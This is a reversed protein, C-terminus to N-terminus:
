KLAVFGVGARAVRCANRLAQEEVDTWRVSLDDWKKTKYERRHVKQMEQLRAMERPDGTGSYVIFLTCPPLAEWVAAIRDVTAKVVTNLEAPSPEAKPQLPSDPSSSFRNDNLWHRTAALEQMRAWTFDVGGGPIYAGDPDGSVARKVGDVIAADDKCGICFGAMGGFGREPAGRDVIAGTKGDRPAGGAPASSGSKPTRSLRKFIPEGSVETSGWKPGKECKQKILDLCVRADEISDHGSTGTGQQIERSLYKQVLWKLSSKLPPGRPHPFAISTDIIFPHTIKLAKLDSDLSHGVLITRPRFLELVKTQIDSLSTTVGELAKPTIGSYSNLTLWGTFHPTLDSSM